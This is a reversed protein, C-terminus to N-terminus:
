PKTVGFKDLVMQSKTNLKSRMKKFTEELREKNFNHQEVLIESIKTYNPKGFTLQFDDTSKPTNFIGRVQTIFDPTLEKFDYKNGKNKIVNELTGFEQILKLASKDGIGDIGEFFDVGVMIAMDTLQDKTIKLEGLIKDLNYYEIDNHVKKGYLSRTQSVSLNRIVREGGFLFSDYDQSGVAFIMNKKVMYSAQAEGDELAQVVPIGLAKLLEKAEMIMETTLHSTGQAYKKTEANDGEDQANEMKKTAIDRLTKRRELEKAKLPNPKGDFIYVLKADNMLLNVSRHFLGSLHSTVRNQNDKLPQGDQGRISALFQYIVNFADIGIKKGVLNEFTIVKAFPELITNLKVGM